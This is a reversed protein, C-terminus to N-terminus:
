FGAVRISKCFPLNKDFTYASSMAVGFVKNESNSRRMKPFDVEWNCFRKSWSMALQFVYASHRRLNRGESIESLTYESISNVIITQLHLGYIFAAAFFEKKM